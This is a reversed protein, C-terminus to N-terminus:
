SIEPKLFDSYGPMLEVAWDYLSLVLVSYRELGQRGCFHAVEPGFSWNSCGDWKVSGEFILSDDDLCRANFEVFNGHLEAIVEYDTIVRIESKIPILCAM